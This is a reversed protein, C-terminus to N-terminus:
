KGEEQIEDNLDSKILQYRRKWVDIKEFERALDKPRVGHKIVIELAILLLGAAHATDDSPPWGAIHCGFSDVYDNSWGTTDPHPGVKIWKPSADADQGMGGVGIMYDNTYMSKRKM